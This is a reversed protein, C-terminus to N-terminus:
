RNPDANKIQPLPITGSRTEEHADSACRGCATGCNGQRMSLRIARLVYIMALGVLVVVAILQGNM